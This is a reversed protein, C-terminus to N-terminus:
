NDNVELIDYCNDTQNNGVASPFRPFRYKHLAFNKAAKRTLKGGKPKKVVPLSTSHEREDLDDKESSASPNCTKSQFSAEERKEGQDCGWVKFKLESSLVTILM